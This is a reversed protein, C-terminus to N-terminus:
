PWVMHALITSMWDAATSILRPVFFLFISLLVFSLIFIYHDTRNWLTVMVISGELGNSNTCWFHLV